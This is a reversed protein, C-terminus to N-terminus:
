VGYEYLVQVFVWWDARPFYLTMEINLGRASEGFLVELHDTVENAFQATDTQNPYVDLAYGSCGFESNEGGLTYSIGLEECTKYHTM